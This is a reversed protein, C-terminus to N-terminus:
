NQAKRVTGPDSNSALLKRADERKHQADALSVEPYAGLALLKQKGDYRYKFRWLKSGSPTVLLFLGGGDFLTVAKDQPKSKQVKMDTLPDIRKPM